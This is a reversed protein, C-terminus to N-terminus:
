QYSRVCRSRRHRIGRRSNRLWQRGLRKGVLQRYGNWIRRAWTTRAYTSLCSPGVLAPRHCGLYPSHCADNTGCLNETVALRTPRPEISPKGLGQGRPTTIPRDGAMGVSSLCRRDGTTPLRRRALRWSRPNRRDPLRCLGAVVVAATARGMITASRGSPSLWAGLLSLDLGPRTAATKGAAYRVPINRSREQDLGAMSRPSPDATREAMRTSGRISYSRQNPTPLRLVCPQSFRGITRRSRTATADLRKEYHNTHDNTQGELNPILNLLEKATRPLPGEYKITGGADLMIIWPLDHDKAIRLFQLLSPPPKGTRVDVVDVPILGHFTHQSTARKRWTPDALVHRQAQTTQRPNEVIAIHLKELPPPVPPIPRPPFPTTSRTMMWFGLQGDKNAYVMWMRDADIPLIVANATTKDSLPLQFQQRPAPPLTSQESALTSGSAILILLYFSKTLSHNM